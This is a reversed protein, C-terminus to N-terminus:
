FPQMRSVQAYADIADALDKADDAMAAAHDVNTEEPSVGALEFVMNTGVERDHMHGLAKQLAELAAVFKKFRKPREVVSSVDAFFEAMYRLKKAEIRVQHRAGPDLSELDDGQSVLKKRRRRLRKAVFDPMPAEAIESFERQWEGADIWAVLDVVFSRSQATALSESFARHADRRRAEIRDAFEPQTEQLVDLDRADGLLGAYWKLNERMQDFAADALMPKFLTIAARLKRVAVRAQHVAEVEDETELAAENLNLDHVCTRAIAQFAARCTMSGDLRVKSGKASRGWTGNILRYGREANGILSLRVPAQACIRRALDFLGQRAGSKLGLELECLDLKAGKAEIHGADIACEIIAEQKSIVVVAREVEVQFVQQLAAEVQDEDILDALPTKRLFARDPLPSKAESEWEGPEIGAATERKVTEVLKDGVERVRLSLGRKWLGHDPTDFYTAKIRGRKEVESAGQEALAAEVEGRWESRALFKLEIDRGM